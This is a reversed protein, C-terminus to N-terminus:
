WVFPILRYKVKQEYEKYGELENELMKEEGFIRLVFLFSLMLGLLVGYKSGLLMPLGIFMLIAGLYMPHRIYGYLGTSVVYQNREKQIRVIASTFTNDAFARLILFSSILLGIGGSIKLWLPFNVTWVFRKADLPMIIFWILYTVTLIYLFYKDWIKQDKATRWKLREALLDPDKYYLYFLNALVSTLFWISFIWGEIWHYDGSIFLILAPYILVYFISFIIKYLPVKNTM